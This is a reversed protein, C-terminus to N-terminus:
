GANSSSLFRTSGVGSFSGLRSLVDNDANNPTTQLSYNSDLVTAGTYEAWAHYTYTEPDEGTYRRTYQGGGIEETPAVASLLTEAVGTTRNRRYLTLEIDALALGTAPDGSNQTFLISIIM